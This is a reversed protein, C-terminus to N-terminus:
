RLDNANWQSISDRLQELNRKKEQFKQESDNGIFVM